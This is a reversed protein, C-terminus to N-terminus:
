IFAFALGVACVACGMLVTAVFLVTGFGVPIEMTGAGFSVENAIPLVEADALISIHTKL